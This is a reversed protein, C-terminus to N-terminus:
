LRPGCYTCTPDISSCRMCVKGTIGCGSCEFCAGHDPCGAATCNGDSRVCVTRCPQDCSVPSRRLGPLSVAGIRAMAVILQDDAPAIAAAASASGSLEAIGAGATAALGWGGFSRLARRRTVGSESVPRAKQRFFM